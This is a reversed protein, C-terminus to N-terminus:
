DIGGTLVFLKANGVIHGFVNLKQSDCWFYYSGHM